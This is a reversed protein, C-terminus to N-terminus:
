CGEGPAPRAAPAAGADPGRRSAYRAHWGEAARITTMEPGDLGYRAFWPTGRERVLADVAALRERATTAAFRGRAAADGQLFYEKWFARGGLVGSAGAEMAMEVQQFYDDFDVGASLLVWPRESAADLAHLNDLLQEDSERDLTGPFEAKYIDCLGSLQRAAEIVTAAKRDLYSADSKTEGGFPFTVTELLFVLDHKKCEEHVHEVVQFQHEASSRETPEFPALLKLADAGMLKAKEVGWGPEAVALPAGLRNTPGGSVEYRVLMGVRPPIAGSAIASWAGYYADILVGSAAPALNRMLDLKADVIEDYTPERGEGGAKLAGTAMEVISSSQDLALMTLTGDPNSIRQLGRLKGPTLGKGLLVTAGLRGAGGRDDVGM